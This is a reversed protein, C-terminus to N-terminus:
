QFRPDKAGQFIGKEDAGQAGAAADSLNEPPIM